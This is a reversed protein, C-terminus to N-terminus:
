CTSVMARVPTAGGSTKRQPQRAPERRSDKSYFWLSVSLVSTKVLRENDETGGHNISAQDYNM